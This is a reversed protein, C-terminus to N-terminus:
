TKREQQKDKNEPEWLVRVASHWEPQPAMDVAAWKENPGASVVKPCTGSWLEATTPYTHTWYSGSRHVLLGMM